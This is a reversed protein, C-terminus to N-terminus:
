YFPVWLLVERPLQCTLLGHPQTLVWVDWSCGKGPPICRSVSPNPTARQELGWTHQEPGYLTGKKLPGSLLHQPHPPTTSNLHQQLPQVLNVLSPGRLQAAMANPPPPTLLFGLSGCSSGSLGLSLSGTHGAREMARQTGSIGSSPSLQQGWLLWKFYLAPADLLQSPGAM